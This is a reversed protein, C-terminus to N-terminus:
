TTTEEAAKEVSFATEKASTGHRRAGEMAPSMLAMWDAILSQTCDALWKQQIAAAQAFDKCAAMQTAAAVGRQYDESRHRMWREAASQVLALGQPQGQMWEGGQRLASQWFAQSAAMGPMFEKETTKSKSNM